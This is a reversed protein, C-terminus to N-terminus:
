RHQRWQMLRLAKPQDPRDPVQPRIECLRSGKIRYKMARIRFDYLEEGDRADKVVIADLPVAKM